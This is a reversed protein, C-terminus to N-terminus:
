VTPCKLLCEDDPEIHADDVQRPFAEACVQGASKMLPGFDGLQAVFERGNHIALPGVAPQDNPPFDLIAGLIDPRTVPLHFPLPAFAPRVNAGPDPATMNRMIIMHDLYIVYRYFKGICRGIALRSAEDPYLNWGKINSDYKARDGVARLEANFDNNYHYRFSLVGVRKNERTVVRKEILCIEARDCGFGDALSYLVKTFSDARLGASIQEFLKKDRVRAFGDMDLILPLNAGASEEWTAQPDPLKRRANLRAAERKALQQKAQAIQVTLKAIKKSYKVRAREARTPTPVIIENVQSTVAVM